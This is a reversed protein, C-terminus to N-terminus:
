QKRIFEFNCIRAEPKGGEGPFLRGEADQALLIDNGELLSGDFGAANLRGLVADHLDTFEVPTILGNERAKEMDIPRLLQGKQQAVWTDPGNYYGRISIYNHNEQLIPRKDRGLIDKHSEFRSLDTSEEIKITGTMYIARVYVTPIGCEGLKYAIAFEEFPSNFGSQVALRRRDQTLGVTPTEGVRSTEWVIHVNDKTVTYYVENDESLKWSVTKRWREPLFYDFLRGNKGVVWLQGGTSEVHGHIYPVGFIEVVRLHSPLKTPIFRDRMDDLYSHRRSYKVKEEHQPTRLLLEYDVVSYQGQEVLGRVLEIQRSAADAGGAKGMEDIVKVYEEGIIIHQPKMDAVVYGKRDLDDIAKRTLPSLSESLQEGSMGIDVFIEVVNKGRIWGYILKYQRLIDLDIGPHRAKIKNIKSRSRGSQWLQMKEPPVYIALPDQTRIVLDPPGYKGERLEMVLSFEEWPSNFEANIFEILTHTDLPVDEGVRCNKVVLDLSKGDITKTPVKYVAGTGMLHERQNEFWEKEYWNEIALQQSLRLGHRTFYMDGGDSTKRHAYIMGLVNVLSEQAVLVNPDSTEQTTM